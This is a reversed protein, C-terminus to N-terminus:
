VLYSSVMTFLAELEAYSTQFISQIVHHRGLRQQFYLADCRMNLIGHTGM